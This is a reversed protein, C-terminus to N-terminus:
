KEISTRLKDWDPPNNVYYLPCKKGTVDYHRLVDKLPDFKHRKCIDALLWLLSAMTIDSFKGDAGPHCTEIGLYKSNNTKAIVDYKPAYSKGAHAAQEDEPVCRLIEGKLGVIYHASTHLGNAGSEFYNRNALASSGPNGVYHVLVGAANLKRGSRGHEVGPTLLKDQIVFTAMDDEKLEARFIKTIIVASYIEDYTPM